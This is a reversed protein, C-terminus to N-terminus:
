RPVFQMHAPEPRFHTDKWHMLSASVAHCVIRTLDGAVTGSALWTTGSKFVVTGTPASAATSTVTATLTVAQGYISPNLSSTPVSTSSAYLQVVQTVTGSSSKFTADGGYTAKITHSRAGLTSISFTSLSNTTLGTGIVATGDYFTVTEGNPIPGYTSTITATFTVPQNIYTPSGSTRVKTTTVAPLTNVAQYLVASTSGLNNSDGSYTATISRTGTTTYATSYTAQGNTLAVTGLVSTGQKFTVTGAVCAFTFVWDVKLSLRSSLSSMSNTLEPGFIIRFVVSSLGGEGWDRIGLKGLDFGV